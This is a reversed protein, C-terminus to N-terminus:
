PTSTTVILCSYTCHNVLMNNQWHTTLRVQIYTFFIFHTCWSHFSSISLSALCSFSMWPALSSSTTLIASNSTLVSAARHTHTHLITFILLSAAKVNSPTFWSSCPRVSQCKSSQFFHADCKPGNFSFDLTKLYAFHGNFHNVISDSTQSKIFYFIFFFIINTKLGSPGLGGM